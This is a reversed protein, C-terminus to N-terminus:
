EEHSDKTDDIDEEDNDMDKDKTKPNINFIIDFNPM